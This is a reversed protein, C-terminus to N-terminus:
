ITEKYNSEMQTRGFFLIKSIDWLDMKSIDNIYKNLETPKEPDYGMNQAIEIVKDHDLTNLANMSHDGYGTLKFPLRDPRSNLNSQTSNLIRLV